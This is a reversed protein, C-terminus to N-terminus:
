WSTATGGTLVEVKMSLSDSEKLDLVARSQRVQFFTTRVAQNQDIGIIWCAVVEILILNFFQQFGKGSLKVQNQIFAKNM